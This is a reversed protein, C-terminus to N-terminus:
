QASDFIKKLYCKQNRIGCACLHAQAATVLSGGLEEGVGDHATVGGAGEHGERTVRLGVEHSSLAEVTAVPGAWDHPEMGVPRKTNSPTEVKVRSIVVRETTLPIM